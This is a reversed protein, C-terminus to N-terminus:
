EMQMSASPCLGSWFCAATQTILSGPNAKLYAVTLTHQGGLHGMAATNPGFQDKNLLTWYAVKGLFSRHSVLGLIFPEVMGM